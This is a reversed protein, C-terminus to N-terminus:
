CDAGPSKQMAPNPKALIGDVDSVFRPPFGIHKASRWWTKGRPTTLLGCLFAGATAEFTGKPFVGRQTRDWIHFSAWAYEQLMQELRLQDAADMSREGHIGATMLEAIDRDKAIAMRIVTWQAMTANHENRQLAGTNHRIQLGVFILSVIVGISAVIQALDSVQQFSM